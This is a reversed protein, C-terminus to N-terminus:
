ASRWTKLFALRERETLMGTFPSCQRLATAHESDDLMVAFCADRGEDLLREWTELYPQSAACVMTRWRGLTERAREFLEPNGEIKAVILRHLALSREDLARHSRSIMAGGASRAKAADPRHRVPATENM